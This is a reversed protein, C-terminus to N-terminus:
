CINEVLSLFYVDTLLLEYNIMRETTRVESEM